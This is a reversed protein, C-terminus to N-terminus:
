EVIITGTGMGMSCAFRFTGKKTPTFDITQDPTRSIASVGLDRINFSRLCGTVSEDLTISVPQGAKVKITNPYYNGNKFGINIKQIDGNSNGANNIANGANSGSNSIFYGVVALIILTLVFYTFAKMPIAREKAWFGYDV